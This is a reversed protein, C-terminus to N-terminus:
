RGRFLKILQFPNHYTKLGTSKKVAFVLVTNTVVANIGLLCAAGFAQFIHIAFPMSVAVIFTSVVMVSRLTKQQGSMNLFVGVSGTAANVLQGVVLVTLIGSGTKFEEGFLGLWFKGKIVLLISLFLAVWFMIGAAQSVFRQLDEKKNAWYLAAFKPAAITNIVVLVLSVMGALRYAVSFVGVESQGQYYDLFFVPMAVLLSSSIGTVMMPFSTKMLEKIQFSQTQRTVKKLAKWIAWRSVLSNIVLAIVLLYIVDMKALNDQFFVLVGLIIVLPRLVSRVLESIQLKKLGRIFEVSIQNVTFFPLVFAVLRLGEVYEQEKGMLNMLWGASLYMAISVSISLPGVISIFYRYLDHMKPREKENDFQGVYRLVAMNMGLGLVMGLVMLVQLMLNYFGVGDPGLRRSILYTLIFGLGMGSMKLVFTIASGKLLDKLHGDNNLKDKLKSLLM